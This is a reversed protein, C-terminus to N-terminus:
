EDYGNFAEEVTEILEGGFESNIKCIAQKLRNYNLWYYVRRGEHRQGLLREKRLIDLHYLMVANVMKFKRSLDTLTKEGDNHIEKLINLRTIDSLAHAFENLNLTNEIENVETDYDIGLLIWGELQNSFEDRLIIYRNILSFSFMCKRVNQNWIYNSELVEGNQKLKEYAFGNKRSFLIDIHKGYFLKMEGIVSQLSDNMRSIYKEMDTYFEYLNIRIVDDLDQMNQLRSYYDETKISEIDFYWDSIRAKLMDYDTIFEIFKQDDLELFSSNIFEIYLKTILRGKKPHLSTFMNWCRDIPSFNKLNRDMLDIDYEENGNLIYSNIWTDRKSTKCVIIQCVDYLFGINTQYVTEM